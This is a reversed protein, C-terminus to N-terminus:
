RGRRMGLFERLEAFTGDDVGYTVVSRASAAWEGVSPTVSSRARRLDKDTVTRPTGTAVSDALARQLALDCVYGVDAGSMGSTARALADLDVDGVPRGELRRRAIERRAPEDPPLVLLTRDLRGPRRAAPDVEWPRNTAALVFLGDNRSDVGDLEVLVQNVVARAWASDSSSRRPAVADVEDLFLVCPAARRAAEFVDAVARAPSGSEHDLLDAQSVSLFSAGLEGALARALHTKGCGPPGYLLLGGRLSAGYAERLEPNRLPALFAQELAAKVQSMGGVDSLRLDPRDIRFSATRLDDEATEWDFAGAGVPMGLLASPWSEPDDDRPEDISDDAPAAEGSPPEVASSVAATAPDALARAMGARAEEHGPELVLASALSAVAADVDGDELLLVGLHVRLPVDDPAQEVALRLSRILSERM